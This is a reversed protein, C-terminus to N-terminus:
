CSVKQKVTDMVIKRHVLESQDHWGDEEGSKGNREPFKCVSYEVPIPRDSGRDEAATDETVDAVIQRVVEQVMLSQWRIPSLQLLIVKLVVEHIVFITESNRAAEPVRYKAGFKGRRWLSYLHSASTCL